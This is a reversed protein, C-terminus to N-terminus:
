DFEDVEDEGAGEYLDSETFELFAQDVGDETLVNARHNSPNLQQAIRSAVTAPPISMTLTYRVHSDSNSRRRGRAIDDSSAPSPTPHFRAHLPSLWDTSQLLLSQAVQSAFAFKVGQSMGTGTPLHQSSLSHRISFDVAHRLLVPYCAVATHAFFLRHLMQRQLQTLEDTSIDRQACDETSSCALRHRAHEITQLLTHTNTPSTLIAAWQQQHSNLPDRRQTHATWMERVTAQVLLGDFLDAILSSLRDVATLPAPSSGSPTALSAARRPPSVCEPAITGPETYSAPRQRKRARADRNTNRRHARGQM